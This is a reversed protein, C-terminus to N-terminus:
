NKGVKRTGPARGGESAAAPTATGPDAWWSDSVIDRLIVYSHGKDSKVWKLKAVIYYTEDWSLKDALKPKVISDGRDVFVEGDDGNIPASVNFVFKNDKDPVNADYSHARRMQVLFTGPMEQYTALFKKLKRSRFEAYSRWDVKWGELTKEMAVPMGQPLDSFHVTFIMMGRQGGPFRASDHFTVSTPTDPGDKETQHYAAMEDRYVSPQRCFALRQEWTPAAFFADLVARPEALLSKDGNRASVPEAKAEVTGNAAAM